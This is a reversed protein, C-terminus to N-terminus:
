TVMIPDITFLITEQIYYSLRFGKVLAVCDRFGLGGSDVCRNESFKTFDESATSPTSFM